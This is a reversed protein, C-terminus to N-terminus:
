RDGTLYIEIERLKVVEVADAAKRLCKELGDIRKHRFTAIVEQNIRVEYTHYGLHNCEPGCNEINIISIM